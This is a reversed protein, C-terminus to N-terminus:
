RMRPLPALNGTDARDEIRVFRVGAILKKPPEQIVGMLQGDRVLQDLHGGVLQALDPEVGSRGSGCHTM